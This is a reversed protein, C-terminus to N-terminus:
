HAPRNEVISWARELWAHISEAPLFVQSAAKAGEHAAFWKDSSLRMQRIEEALTAADGQPIVSGAGFDLLVKGIESRVPGVLICPRQVAMAAYIKVPVLLGAAEEKMSILHLDGSEMLDRLRSAPQYPLLRVNDLHRRSRERALADNRPGDGVFVFEIEPHQTQLIEAADLITTVPHARGINGAYLVRFKPGHKVQQDHTRYGNLVEDYVEGNVPQPEPPNTLEIDPWNPILSIQKADFGDQGLLRAMCRGIVVVKDAGRMANRGIKQLFNLIFSPVGVGLTPLLDPYLDQCWHMHSNKKFKKLIQGIVVQLPPDTMTVVLDTRPLRLAAILLKIWIWAYVFLNSPRESGRLHIVKVAGDLENFAKPATTLVTVQWGERAFNRALDRLVRGTAGKVPPYVRNIFLVSPRQM